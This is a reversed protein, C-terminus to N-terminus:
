LRSHVDQEGSAERLLTLDAAALSLLMEGGELPNRRVWARATQVICLLSSEERSGM